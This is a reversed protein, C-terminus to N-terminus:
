QNNNYNWLVNSHRLPKIYFFTFLITFGIVFVSSVILLIRLLYSTIEANPNNILIGVNEILYYFIPVSLINVVPRAFGIAKVAYFFPSKFLNICILVTVSVNFIM